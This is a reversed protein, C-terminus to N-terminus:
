ILNFCVGIFVNVNDCVESKKFINLVQDLFALTRNVAKQARKRTSSKDTDGDSMAQFWDPLLAEQIKM